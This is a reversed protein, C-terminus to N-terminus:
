WHLYKKLRFYKLRVKTYVILACIEKIPHRIKQFADWYLIPCFCVNIIPPGLAVKINKFIDTVYPLRSKLFVFGSSSHQMQPKGLISCVFHSTCCLHFALGQSYLLQVSCLFGGKFYYLVTCKRFFYFSQLFKLLFITLTVMLKRPLSTRFWSVSITGQM